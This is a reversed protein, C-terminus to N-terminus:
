RPPLCDLYLGQQPGDRVEFRVAKSRLREATMQTLPKSM